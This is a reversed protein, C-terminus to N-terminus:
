REDDTTGPLLRLLLSVAPIMRAMANPTLSELAAKTETTTVPAPLGTDAQAASAAFGRGALDCQCFGDRTLPTHRRM